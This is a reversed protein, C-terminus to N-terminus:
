FLVMNFFIMEIITKLVAQNNKGISPLRELILVLVETATEKLSSEDINKDYVIASMLQVVNEFQKKFFKPESDAIDAFASLVDDGYKSYDKKILQMASNLMTQVLVEFKKTEKPEIVGLLSNLANLASMQVESSTSQLASQFIQVLSDKKAMYDDRQYEFHTGM